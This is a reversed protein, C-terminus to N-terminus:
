YISKPAEELGTGPELLVKGGTVVHPTEYCGIKSIRPCAMDIATHREVCECRRSEYMRFYDTRDTACERWSYRVGPMYTVGGVEPRTEHPNSRKRGSEASKVSSKVM